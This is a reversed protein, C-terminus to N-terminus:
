KRDSFSDIVEPIKAANTLMGPVMKFTRTMKAIILLGTRRFSYRVGEMTEMADVSKRNLKYTRGLM